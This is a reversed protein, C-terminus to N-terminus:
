IERIKTYTATKGRGKCELLGEKTWRHLIVRATNINGVKDYLDQQNFSSPLSKFYSETRLTHVMGKEIREMEKNDFYMEAYKGFYMNQCYFQIDMILNVFDKDVEDIDLSRDAEWKDWNRMIIFPVAINIGYYPVRKALLARKKDEDLKAIQMQHNCWTWVEYVLDWIPLEGQVTDMKYAWAKLKDIAESNKKSQKTFPMMEYDDSLLPICALRGFLGSGFNRETIKRNLSLPTGTYVYNWYVNFPGNVADHNRYQQNDEENHFAKLEFDSKDIWQGGKSNKTAADLESDFTFLHIHLDEGDVVVHNNVMDEIFVGNATRSGHIRIKDTPYDIAAEKRNKDSQARNKSDKKWANIHDNGIKDSVIIPEMLIKYLKNAFSKGSSPDGIIFIGYNLRRRLEPNHYFYYWTKTALTGFMAGSVFLAPAYSEPRLGQCVERLCPYYKFLVEIQEGWIEFKELVEKNTKKKEEKQTTAMGNLVKRMRNPMYTSYKFALADEIDKDVNDGEMILDQVFQCKKVYYKLLDNKRDCVHRLESVLNMLTDHREGEMPPAIALWAEIIDEVKKGKYRYSEYLEVEEPGEGQPLNPPTKFLKPDRINSNYLADFKKGYEADFYDFLRDNLYLIDDKTSAFSLRAADKCKEDCELGLLDSLWEQNARLNGREPKAIAVGKLGEGSPTIYFFLIGYKEYLIDEVQYLKDAGEIGLKSLIEDWAAHPDGVHDYDVMFLGNLRAHENNRWKGMGHNVGKKDIWVHEDIDSCQFVFGPLFSKTKNASAKLEKAKDTLGAKLATEANKLQERIFLIDSCQKVDNLIGFFSERNCPVTPKGRELEVIFGM